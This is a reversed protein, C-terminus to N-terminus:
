VYLQLQLQSMEEMVEKVVKRIEANDMTTSNGMKSLQSKVEKIDDTIAQVQKNMEAKSVFTSALDARVNKMEQGLAATIQASVQTTVAAIIHQTMTSLDTSETRMAPMAPAAALSLVSNPVHQPWDLAPTSIDVATGPQTAQPTALLAKEIGKHVTPTAKATPNADVPPKGM